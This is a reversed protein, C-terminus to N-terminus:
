SCMDATLYRQLAERQVKARYNLELYERESLKRIRERNHGVLWIHPGELPDNTGAHSPFEFGWAHQEDVEIM